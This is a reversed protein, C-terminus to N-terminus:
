TMYITINRGHPPGLLGIREIQGAILARRKSRAEADKRLHRMNCAIGRRLRHPYRGRGIPHARPRLIMADIDPVRQEFFLRVVIGIQRGEDAVNERRCFRGEVPMEVLDRFLGALEERGMGICRRAPDQIDPFAIKASGDDPMERFGVFPELDNRPNFPVVRLRAVAIQFQPLVPSRIASVIRIRQIEIHDRMFDTM